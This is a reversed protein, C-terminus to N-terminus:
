KLSPRIEELFTWGWGALKDNRLILPTLEDDTIIGDRKVLDTYYYLIEFTIGQRNKYAESRYPNPIPSSFESYVTQTGMTLLVDKKSMGIVLKNINEKNDIMMRQQVNACACLTLLLFLLITVKPM